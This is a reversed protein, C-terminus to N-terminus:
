KRKQLCAHARRGRTSEAVSVVSGVRPNLSWTWTIRSMSPSNESEEGEKRRTAGEEEDSSCKMENLFTRMEIYKIFANPVLWRVLRGVSPRGRISIRPRM